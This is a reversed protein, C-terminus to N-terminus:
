LTFPTVIQSRYESTTKIRLDVTCKRGSIDWSVSTHSEMTNPRFRGRGGRGVLPIRGTNHDPHCPKCHIALVQGRPRAAKSYSHVLSGGRSRTFIYFLKVSTKGNSLCPKYSKRPKQDDSSRGPPSTLSEPRGTM